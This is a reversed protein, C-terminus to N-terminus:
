AHSRWSPKNFWTFLTVLFPIAATEIGPCKSERRGAVNVIRPDYLCMWNFVELKRRENNLDMVRIHFCPKEYHLCLDWTFKSGTELKDAILITLDALVVNASTRFKYESSPHEKLGYVAGLTAPRPGRETIYGKPAYGGTEIHCKLAARLGAIDAGTQGGSIVKHIVRCTQATLGLM